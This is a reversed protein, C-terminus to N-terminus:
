RDLRRDLGPVGRHPLGARLHGDRHRRLRPGPGARRRARQPSARVAGPGLLPLLVRARSSVDLTAHMTSDAVHSLDAIMGLRNCERVVERGFASLGGVGPDDTASDAWPTNRFHTLTLYRAGLTYFSGCRAWRTTSATGARWASSRPSGAAAGRRRWTTPRTRRARPRGPLPRGAPARRRDAGAHRHGRRRGPDARRVRELVPCRGRRPAAPPLRHAAGSRSTSPWTSRRGPRLAARTRLEWPLDNHGDVVPTPGSCTRHTTTM